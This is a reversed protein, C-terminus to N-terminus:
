EQEQSLMHKNLLLQVLNSDSASKLILSTERLGSSLREELLESLGAAQNRAESEGQRRTGALDLVVVLLTSALFIAALWKARKGKAQQQKRM